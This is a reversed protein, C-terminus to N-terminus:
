CKPAKGPKAQRLTNQGLANQPRATQLLTFNNMAAKRPLLADSPM